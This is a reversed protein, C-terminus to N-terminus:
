SLKEILEKKKEKPIFTFSEGKKIYAINFNETTLEAEFVIKLTKVALDLLEEFTMNQKYEKELFQRAAQQGSGIAAAYYGWYAGSPDTLFIKPDNNPDIGAILLSIGFPRYGGQQTYLQKFDCIERTVDVVSIKEDYSLINVQAQVRAKDILVRADATLGAIAAGIHEDIKFIKESGLEEQLDMIRKEVAFIVSDKNRLAIATTGRRVAEIAYEVQFLRGDPSFTTIGRDYGLGPQSFM